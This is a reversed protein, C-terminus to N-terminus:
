KSSIAIEERERRITLTLKTFDFGQDAQIEGLIQKIVVLHQPTYFKRILLLYQYEKDTLTQKSADKWLVDFDKQLVLRFNRTFDIDMFEKSLQKRIDTRCQSEIAAFTPDDERWRRVSRLSTKSLKIAEMVAFNAIIYSLYVGKKTGDTFYPVMAQTIGETTTLENTMLGGPLQTWDADTRAKRIKRRSSKKRM